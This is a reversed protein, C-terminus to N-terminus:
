IKRLILKKQNFDSAANIFRTFDAWESAPMEAKLYIRQISLKLIGGDLVAKTSFHGTANSIETNLAEIGEAKYGSPIQLRFEM